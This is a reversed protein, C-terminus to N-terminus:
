PASPQAPKAPETKAQNWMAIKARRAKDDDTGSIAPERKSSSSSSSSGSSSSKEKHEERGGRDRSRDDRPRDRERDRKPSRSRDKEKRSSSSSSGSGSGGSGGAASTNSSHRRSRGRSGSRSRSRSKGKGRAAKKALKHLKKKLHRPVHKLHMFNCFGGRACHEEDFQRCRAERFDTVPSYEPMVLRGAYYRGRLANVCAESQEETHYKIYINGFMHDGLNEVVHLQEIEGYKALEEVLEEYFDEFHETDDVPQGTSPDPPPAAYLHPILITQSFQPRMHNRSCREGHRCAGIKYYFPCNVKDEETGFIRALHDAM